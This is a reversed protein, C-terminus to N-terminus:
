SCRVMDLIPFDPGTLGFSSLIAPISLIISFVGFIVLGGVFGWTLAKRAETMGQPSGRSKLFMLGYIILMAGFTIIAFRYFYCTLQSLFKFLWDIGLIEGPAGGLFQTFGFQAHASTSFLFYFTSFLLVIILVQLKYNTIQLKM